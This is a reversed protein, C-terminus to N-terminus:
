SIWFPRIPRHSAEATEAQAGTVGGHSPSQLASVTKPFHSRAMDRGKLTGLVLECRLLLGLRFVASSSSICGSCLADSTPISVNAKFLLIVKVGGALQTEEFGFRDELGVLSVDM